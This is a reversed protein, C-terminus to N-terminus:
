EGFKAKRAALYASEARKRAEDDLVEQLRDKGDPGLRDLAFGIVMRALAIIEEIM